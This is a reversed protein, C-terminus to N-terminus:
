MRSSEEPGPLNTCKSVGNVPTDFHANLLQYPSRECTCFDAPHVADIMCKWLMAQLTVNMAIVFVSGPHTVELLASVNYNNKSEM